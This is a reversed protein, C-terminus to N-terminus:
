LFERAGMSITIGHVDEVYGREGGVFDLADKPEGPCCSCGGALNGFHVVADDGVGWRFHGAPVYDVDFVGDGCVPVFATAGEAAHIRRRRDSWWPVIVWEATQAVEADWVAIVKVPVLLASLIELLQGHRPHKPIRLWLLHHPTRM